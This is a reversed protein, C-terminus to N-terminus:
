DQLEEIPRWNNSHALGRLRLMQYHRDSCNSLKVLTIVDLSRLSRNEMKKLNNNQSAVKRVLDAISTDTRQAEKSAIEVERMKTQVNIMEEVMKAFFDDGSAERKVMLLMKMRMEFSTQNFALKM